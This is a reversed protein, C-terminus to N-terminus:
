TTGKGTDSIPYGWPAITFSALTFGLLKWFISPLLARFFTPVRSSCSRFDFM